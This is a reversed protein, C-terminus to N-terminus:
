ADRPGDLFPLLPGFACEALKALGASEELHEPAGIALMVNILMGQAFFDRALDEGCGTRLVADFIEAMRRRALEGIAPESAAMFGHMMVEMVSRDNAVVEGYALALPELPSEAELDVGGADVVAEFADLVRRTAREVVELFLDQKSGFIRVVYPQSVGAEKAVADTSTAAYGSRAFARTAAALVLERRDAASM